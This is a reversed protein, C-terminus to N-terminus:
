GIKQNSITREDWGKLEEQLLKQQWLLEREALKIKLHLIRGEGKQLCEKLLSNYTIARGLGVIEGPRKKHPSHSTVM